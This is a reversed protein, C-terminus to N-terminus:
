SEEGVETLWGPRSKGQADPWTITGHNALRELAPALDNQPVKVGKARLSTALKNVTDFRHGKAEQLHEVVKEGLDDYKDRVAGEEGAKAPISLHAVTKAKGTLDAMPGDDVVFQGMYWWPLEKDLQLEGWRQVEGYRDKVVHLASSGKGGKTIPTKSATMRFGVGDVDNLWGAAGYSYSETQRNTAKPPHGLSLVATGLSTLPFVFLNRYAGVSEPEKVAWGQTGCAANIGDLVALVPTDELRAVERAMEGAEWRSAPDEPWHFRKRIVEKDVGLGMLRHIIGGPDPEEFHVYVVHGGDELVAKVHWLAFSTKGATMLGIVTHWRGPYLMRIYDDRNAGVTPDPPTYTGDLYQDLDLWRGPDPADDPTVPPPPLTYSKFDGLWHGAAIHDAADKGVAAQKLTLDCKDWLRGSLNGAWKDGAADKDVIAIVTAGYLPTLDCKSLGDVGGRNTTAVAGISELAHVDNEGEVMYVPVGNRVAEEVKDVHYLTTQAGPIHGSQYFRKKGDPGYSRHATAGDAYHYDYGRADDYLDSRRMELSALIDDIQCGVHCYMLISGEIRRIALATPNDGDHAPCLARAQDGNRKIKELKDIIREYATATM